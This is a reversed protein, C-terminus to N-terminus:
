KTLCLPTLTATIQKPKTVNLRLGGAFPKRKTLESNSKTVATSIATAKRKYEALLSKDNRMEALLDENKKEKTEIDYRAANLEGLLSKIQKNKRHLLEKAATLEEYCDVGPRKALLLKLQLLQKNRTHLASDKSSIEKYKSVLISQLKQIKMVMEYETLRAHMLFRHHHPVPQKLNEIAARKDQELQLARCTDVLESRLEGNIFDIGQFSNLKRRLNRIEIKLIRMDMSQKRVEFFGAKLMSDMVSMKKVLLENETRCQIVMAGFVDREYRLQYYHRKLDQQELDAEHLLRILHNNEHKEHELTKVFNKVLQKQAHVEESLKLIEHLRRASEQRLFIITNDSNCTIKVATDKETETFKLMYKLMTFLEAQMHAETAAEANKQRLVLMSDRTKKLLQELKQSSIILSDNESDQIRIVYIIKQAWFSIRIPCHDAVVTELHRIANNKEINMSNCSAMRYYVSKMEGIIHKLNKGLGEANAKATSLLNKQYKLEAVGYNAKAESLYLKNKLTQIQRNASDLVKQMNGELERSVSLEHLLREIEMQLDRNKNSCKFIEKNRAEAQFILRAKATDCQKLSRSMTKYHVGRRTNETNLSQAVLTLTEKEAECKALNRSVKQLSDHLKKSKRKLHCINKNLQGMHYKTMNLNKQLVQITTAKSSIEVKLKFNEAKTRELQKRMDELSSHSLNPVSELKALLEEKERQADHKIDNYDEQVSHLAQHLEAIRQEKQLNIEELEDMKKELKKRAELEETMKKNNKRLINLNNEMTRIDARISNLEALYENSVEELSKVVSQGRGTVQGSVSRKWHGSWQSVEELSRVVSQGRGTVRGSVSRKWHGSWQSVEELSRVVSQGRGTVQGSVSRKWHGSWQSVEELSRVVSQGRGTVQGSVSRKWHGSWQSVDELSGIVSQGRGTVQGSVSRKWHGSWQSVEELSRVMSQGRGTVQGSVSRKWHGSWQSVEELSGVVSQGRGTVQGNVSRKWHGSWQSVEELSRVVSQGRGTVQGSVSRKWHGSWQSVEELSGIVSQGRGTVQGSVSRKWHGSWQSVEELSRVVSQGRGTVRGSVSRKWHGSWQSVEELSRVVSQGRGTVQGSGSRKWHGSWQSVEELSRVVSQGRGTVRGSVSRKWHGSWQSVEELSRVVSQCRGTVRDSVSRKWHGSWQSVEELSGVVSQGRGTVQGNVSRKWHGSWQSVEEAEAKERRWRDALVLVKAVRPDQKLRFVLDEVEHERKTLKRKLEAENSRVQSLVEYVKRLESRYVDPTSNATVKQQAKHYMEEVDPYPTLFPPDLDVEYVVEDYVAKLEPARVLIQPLKPASKHKDSRSMSSVRRIQESHEPEEDEEEQEEQEPPESLVVTDDDMDSTVDSLTFVSQRAASDQLPEEPVEAVSPDTADETMNRNTDKIKKDSKRRQRSPM